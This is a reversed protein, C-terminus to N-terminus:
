LGVTVEVENGANIYELTDFSLKNAMAIGRGHNDYARESDFEMYKEWDFGNGCDIIKIRIVREDVYFDVEVYKDTNEPLKLRREVESLWTGANNLETKEDYTIGLNGHEVSNILLESLGSVVREPEPCANALFAALSRAEHVSQFRFFASQLLNVVEGKSKVQESLAQFRHYDDIAASVISKLLDEDFPKTLYYYAGCRLGESVDQRSAAASQIIVPVAELESHSKIKELVELGDMEPMMRDLLIASFRSPNAELIEWAEVGSGAMELTYGSDDLYEAIIELNFEEDDVVLLCPSSASMVSATLATFMELTLDFRFYIWFLPLDIETLQDPLNVLAM